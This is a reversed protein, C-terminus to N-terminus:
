VDCLAEFVAALAADSEALSRALAAAERADRARFRFEIWEGELRPSGEAQIGAPLARAADRLAGEVRVLVPYRLRRLAAHFGAGERLAAAAPGGALIEADRCDGRAALDLIWEVGERIEQATPSGPRIWERWLALRAAPSLATLRLLLGERVAPDELIEEELAPVALIRELADRGRPLGLRPAVEKEIKEFSHAALSRFLGLLRGAELADLPPGFRNEEVLQELALVDPLEGAACTRAPLSELGLARACRVRRHGSVVQWRGEDERLLPPVLVGWREVSGLLADPVGERRFAFTRDATVDELPISDFNVTDSWFSAGNHSSAASNEEKADGPGLARERGGRAM